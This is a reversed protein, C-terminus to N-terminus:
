YYGFRKSSNRVSNVCLALYIPYLTTGKPIIEVYYDFASENSAAREIRLIDGVEGADRIQASRIRFDRKVPWYMINATAIQGSIRIRVNFRDMKGQRAPDEAFGGPWEWFLSYMDRAVLPIFIEPSRRSTGETMQGVGVDTQQLTMLFGSAAVPSTGMLPGAPTAITPMGPAPQPSFPFDASAESVAATYQDNPHAYSASESPVLGWNHLDDLLKKNLPAAIGSAPDAWEDLSTEIEDLFAADRHNALNLRVRVGAEYNSILGGGTLNGSGM